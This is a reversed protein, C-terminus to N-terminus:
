TIITTYVDENQIFSQKDENRSSNSQRRQYHSNDKWKGGYIKRRHHGMARVINFESTWSHTSCRGFLSYIKSWQM